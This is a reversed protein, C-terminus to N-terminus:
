NSWLGSNLYTEAYMKSQWDPLRSEYRSIFGFAKIQEEKGMRIWKAEAKKKKSLQPPAYRKWFMEFTIEVAVETLTLHPAKEILKLMDDHTRPIWHLFSVHQTYSMDSRTIDFHIMLDQDDYRLEVEGNWLTSKLICTKM